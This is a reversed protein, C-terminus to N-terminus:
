WLYILSHVPDTVLHPAIGLVVIVAALLILLIRFGPGEDLEQRDGEKFYMAQILRFYYYVSIAACLVAFIVLWLYKGTSVVAALMYYKAFFGATLPIGALSLLFITTTAALVPHHKALGSFGEFTYDKMRILVAFIGITAASYATIYLIIGDRAIGNISLIAMLMFGAQAISSYALMRKVSQQFVATLNGIFLTAATIIAVFLQWRDHVRGFGEDFLRIFGIFLASKVITAMFSTFVTPAGDYVDPTWFHFPAASVKFSMSVLLLLLGSIFLPSIPAKGIAMEDIFLSGNQSAGYLFAIGLLMLGTSFAGMLFYKLSAENGKLNRKDSGTLIYLPISIIEIGLFLMLLTNFTTVLAVGCLVFFILAFYEALNIGVNEMDRGSLMVFVLTSGFIVSNALLGFTDFYLMRHVDIHVRFGGGLDLCNALFLLLLGLIAITRITRKGSVFVGSFMMVIGWIASLIIANM